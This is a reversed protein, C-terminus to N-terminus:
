SDPAFDEGDNSWLKLLPDFFLTNETFRTRKKRRISVDIAGVFHPSAKRM